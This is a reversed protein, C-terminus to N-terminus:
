TICMHHVVDFSYVYMTIPKAIMCTWSFCSMNHYDRTDTRKSNFELGSSDLVTQLKEGMKIQKPLSKKMRPTFEKPKLKLRTGM